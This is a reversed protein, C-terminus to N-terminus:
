FDKNNLINNIEANKNYEQQTQFSNKFEEDSFEKIEENLNDKELTINTKSDLKKTMKRVILNMLLIGIWVFFICMSAQLLIMVTSNSYIETVEYININSEKATDLVLVFFFWILAFCVINFIKTIKTYNKNIFNLVLLLISIFLMSLYVVLNPFYMAKFFKEVVNDNIALVYSGYRALVLISLLTYSITAIIKPVPSKLKNNAILLALTIILIILLTIFFSSSFVTEFITKIREFLSYETM